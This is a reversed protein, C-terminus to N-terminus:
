SVNSLVINCFAQLSVKSVVVPFDFPLAVFDGNESEFQTLVRKDVTEELRTYCM